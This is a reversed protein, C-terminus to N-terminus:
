LHPLVAWFPWQLVAKIAGWWGLAASWDMGEDGLPKLSTLLLRLARSSTTKAYM